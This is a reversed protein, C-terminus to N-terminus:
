SNCSSKGPSVIGSGIRLVTAFDAGEQYESMIGLDTHVWAHADLSFDDAFKVGACIVAFINRRRLMVFEAISRSLCLSDWPMSNAARSISRRVLRIEELRSIDANIAEGWRRRLLKDIYKFDICKLTANSAILLTSAELFLKKESRNLYFFKVLRRM